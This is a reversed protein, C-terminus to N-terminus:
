NKLKPMKYSSDRILTKQVNEGSKSNYCFLGIFHFCAGNPVM